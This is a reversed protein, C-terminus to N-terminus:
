PAYIGYNATGRGAGHACGDVSKRRIKPFNELISKRPSMVKAFRSIPVTSKSSETDIAGLPPPDDRWAATASATRSFYADSGRPEEWGEEEEEEM